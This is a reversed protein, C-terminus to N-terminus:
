YCLRWWCIEPDAGFADCCFACVDTESGGDNELFEQRRTALPWGETLAPAERALRITVPGDSTAIQASRSTPSDAGLEHLVRDVIEPDAFAPHM